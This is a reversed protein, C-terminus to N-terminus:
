KTLEDFRSALEEANEAMFLGVWRGNIRVIYHQAIEYQDALYFEFNSIITQARAELQGRVTGADAEDKVKVVSIMGAKVNIMPEILSYSELKDTSLGGYLESLYESPIEALSTGAYLSSLEQTVAVADLAPIETPAPTPGETPKPTSKPTPTPEATPTPAPEATPAPIPAASSAPIETPAPTPEETPVPTETPAPAATEEIVPSASPEEPLDAPTGCGSLMLAALAAASILSVIRKTM